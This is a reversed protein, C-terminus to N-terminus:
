SRLIFNECLDLDWVHDSQPVQCQLGMHPDMISIELVRRRKRRKIKNRKVKIPRKEKIDELLSELSRVNNTKRKFTVWIQRLPMKWLGGDQKGGVEWTNVKLRDQEWISTDVEAAEILEEVTSIKRGYYSLSLSNEKEDAELQEERQHTKSEQTKTPRKAIELRTLLTSRSIGLSEAAKTKNGKFRKLAACAKM